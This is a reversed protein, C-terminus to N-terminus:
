LGYFGHGTRRDVIAEQITELKEQDSKTSRMVTEILTLCVSDKVHRDWDIEQVEILGNKKDIDVM